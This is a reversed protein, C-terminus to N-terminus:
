TTQRIWRWAEIAVAVALSTLVVGLLVFRLALSITGTGTGGGLGLTAVVALAFLITWVPAFPRFATLVRRVTATYTRPGSCSPGSSDTTLRSQGMVPGAPM